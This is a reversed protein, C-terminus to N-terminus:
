IKKQSHIQSPKIERENKLDQYNKKKGKLFKMKKPIVKDEEIEEKQLDLLGSIIQLNNKVRHHIEKLLLEREALTTKLQTTRNNIIAELRDKDKNLKKTRYSLIFVGLLLFLVVMLLIFWPKNYFAANVEVVFKLESSSWQGTTTQAKIRM